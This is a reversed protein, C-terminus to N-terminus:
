PMVNWAYQRARRSAPANWCILPPEVTLSTALPDPNSDSLPKRAANARAKPAGGTSAALPSATASSHIAEGTPGSTAPAVSAPRHKRSNLSRRM